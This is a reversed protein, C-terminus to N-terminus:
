GSTRIYKGFTENLKKAKAFHTRIKILVIKGRQDIDRAIEYLGSYNLSFDCSNQFTLYKTSNYYYINYIEYINNCVSLFKDTHVM